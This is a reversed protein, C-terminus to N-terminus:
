VAFQIRGQLMSTRNLIKQPVKLAAAYNQLGVAATLPDLKEIARGIGTVKTKKITDM